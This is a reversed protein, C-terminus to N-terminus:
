LKTNLPSVYVEVACFCVSFVVCIACFIGDGMVDVPNTDETNVREAFAIRCYVCYVIM